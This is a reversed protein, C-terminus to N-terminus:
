VESVYAMEIRIRSLFNTQKNLSLWKIEKGTRHVTSKSIWNVTNM